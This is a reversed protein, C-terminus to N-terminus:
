DPSRETGCNWCATFQGELREGCRPCRWAPRRPRPSMWARLVEGAAQRDSERALFLKATCETFPVEGAITALQENRVFCPIGEAELLNKVHYIEHLRLSTFVPKM